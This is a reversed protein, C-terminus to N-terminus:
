ARLMIASLQRGYDAEVRHTARRYSFFTEPAAYTCHGTWSAHVGTRELRDVIYGPLDFMAHGPTTSPVFWRDIEEAGFRATFEPGVEYSAQSITPGLTAVVRERMAGLEIMADLTAELVGGVAGKWGAHAAGVVGAKADAFLVPGCDATVVGIPLGRVATVIADCRPKAVNGGFFPETAVHVDSSHVQYPTTVDAHDAGLAAAVRARNERVAAPDDDSGVGVNLDGYIGNSVGGVRTFFGHEIGSTELRVSRIPDPVDPSSVPRPMM